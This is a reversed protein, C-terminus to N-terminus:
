PASWSVQVLHSLDLVYDRETQQLEQIAHLKKQKFKEPQSIIPIPSQEEEEIISSSNCSCCSCTSDM